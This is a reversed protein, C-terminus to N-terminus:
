KEIKNNAFRELLIVFVIGIIIYFITIISSESYVEPIYISIKDVEVLDQSKVKWPWVGRLSGAIFGVIISITISKHRKLLSGLINSLFILGLVSGTTFLLLVKLLYIREDDYIFTTDFKPDKKGLYYGVGIIFFVPFLVHTAEISGGVKGVEVLAKTFFEAKFAALGDPM